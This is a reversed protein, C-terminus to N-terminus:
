SIVLGKYCFGRYIYVSRSQKQIFIYGPKVYIRIGLYGPKSPKPISPKFPKLNPPTGPKALPNRDAMYPRETVWVMM